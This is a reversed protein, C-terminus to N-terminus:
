LHHHGVHRREQLGYLGDLVLVRSTGAGQLRADLSNGLLDPREVGGFYRSALGLWLIENASCSRDRKGGALSHGGALAELLLVDNDSCIHSSLCDGVHQSSALYTLPNAHQCHIFMKKM